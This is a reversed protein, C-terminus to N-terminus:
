DNKMLVCVMGLHRRVCAMGLRLDYVMQHRACVKDLLRRVCAKDLRLDYVMQHLACVMDLLRVYAM